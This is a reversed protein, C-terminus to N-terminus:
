EGYYGTKELWFLCGCNTVESNLLSDASYVKVEGCDCEVAYHSYSNSESVKEIVVFSSYRDGVKIQSSTNM